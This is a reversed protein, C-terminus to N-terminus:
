TKHPIYNLIIYDITRLISIVSYDTAIMHINVKKIVGLLSGSGVSSVAIGHEPYDVKEYM